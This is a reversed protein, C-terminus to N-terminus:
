EIIPAVGLGQSPVLFKVRGARATAQRSGLSVQVSANPSCKGWVRVPEGRQVLMNNGFIKPLWVEASAPKGVLFMGGALALALRDLRNLGRRRQINTWRKM